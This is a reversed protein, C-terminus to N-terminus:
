GISRACVKAQLQYCLLFSPLVGEQILLFFAFILPRSIIEHDIEEFTHSRAPILSAVVPDAALCMDSEARPSGTFASILKASITLPKKYWIIHCVTMNQDHLSKNKKWLWTQFHQHGSLSPSVVPSQTMPDLLVILETM